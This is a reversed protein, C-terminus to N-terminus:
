MEDWNINGNYNNWEWIIFQLLKDVNSTYSLSLSNEYLNVEAYPKEQNKYSLWIENNVEIFVHLIKPLLIYLISILHTFIYRKNCYIKDSTKEQQKFQGGRFM